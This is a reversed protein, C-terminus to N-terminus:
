KNKKKKNPTQNELFSCFTTPYDLTLRNSTVGYVVACSDVCECAYFGFEQKTPTIGIFCVIDFIDDGRYINQDEYFQTQNLNRQLQLWRQLM